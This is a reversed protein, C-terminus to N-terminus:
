LCLQEAANGDPRVGIQRFCGFRQQGGSQFPNKQRKAALTDVGHFGSLPDM